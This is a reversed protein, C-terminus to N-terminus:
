GVRPAQLVTEIGDVEELAAPDLEDHCDVLEVPSESVFRLLHTGREVEHSVNRDRQAISAVCARRGGHQNGQDLVQDGGDIVGTRTVWGDGSMGSLSGAM